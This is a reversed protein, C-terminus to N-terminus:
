ILDFFRIYGVCFINVVVLSYLSLLLFVIIYVFYALSVVRAKYILVFDMLSYAYKIISKQMSRSYLSITLFLQCPTLGM